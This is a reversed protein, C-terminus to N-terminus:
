AIVVGYKTVGFAQEGLGSAVEQAFTWCKLTLICRNTVVIILMDKHLVITIRWMESKIDSSLANVIDTSRLYHFGKSAARLINKIPHYINPENM